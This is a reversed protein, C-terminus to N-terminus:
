AAKSATTICDDGVDVHCDSIRVNRCSEPNIGDTNPSDPPNVITIKSITVNDCALPSCTWMPSNRLTVGEILVNRCDVVRLLLPRRAVGPNKKQSEWWIQGRGDITGRGTIAINELGEGCILSARSLKVGPGEWKSSWKPFDDFNQSGLLTAGAELHLTINSKM